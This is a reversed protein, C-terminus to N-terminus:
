EEEEDEEEEEEKKDEEEEEEDEEEKDHEEEEHKAEEKAAAKKKDCPDVKWAEVIRRFQEEQSVVVQPSELFYELIWESARSGIDILEKRLPAFEDECINLAKPKPRSSMGADKKTPEPLPTELGLFDQLDLAFQDTGEAFQDVDYLFLPNSIEFTSEYTYKTFRILNREHKSKMPTKGFVALNTQFNARETCVGDKEPTCEGSLENPHPLSYNEAAHRMRFNYFSEFWRIPHRVGVILKTHPYYKHFHRMSRRSFHGPCKFGRLKDPALETYLRKALGAPKNDYLDCVEDEWTSIDPHRGVWNKIFTTGAKAHGLIAWNLLFSVDGKVGREEDKILQELPPRPIIAKHKTTTMKEEVKANDNNRHNLTNVAENREDESLNKHPQQNGRTHHDLLMQENAQFSMLFLFGVSFLGCVLLFSWVPHCRWFSLLRKSPNRRITVM